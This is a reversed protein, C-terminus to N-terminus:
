ITQQWGIWGTSLHILGVKVVMGVSVLILHDEVRALGTEPEPGQTIAV